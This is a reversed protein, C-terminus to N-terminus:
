GNALKAQVKIELNNRLANSVPCGQEGKKALEEFQAQDIGPVEGTVNLEMATIRIGGEFRDLSCVATVHIQKPPHGAQDLTNSLAMSYCSAHAAAILEEPSTKGDSRETRSAWTVPTQTLVGSGISLLGNGHSLNGKWTVEARRQAVLM